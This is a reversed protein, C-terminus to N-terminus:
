RRKSVGEPSNRWMPYGPQTSGHRLRGESFPLHSPRFLKGGAGGTGAIGGESYRDPHIATVNFVGPSLAPKISCWLKRIPFSKWSIEARLWFETRSAGGIGGFFSLPVSIVLACPCSVVLFILAREIWEAWNGGTFLPPAVALLVARQGGRSPRIIGRLNPSLIRRKQKKSSSNEVLDLIKAM